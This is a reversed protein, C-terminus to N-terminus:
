IVWLPLEASIEHLDYKPAFYQALATQYFLSYSYSFRIEPRYLLVIFCWGKNSILALWRGSDLSHIIHVVHYSLTFLRLYAFVEIFIIKLHYLAYKIHFLDVYNESLVHSLTGSGYNETVIYPFFRRWGKITINRLWFNPRQSSVFHLNRSNRLTIKNQDFSAMTVLNSYIMRYSIEFLTWWCLFRPMYFLEEHYKLYINSM